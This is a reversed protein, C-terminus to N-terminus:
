PTQNICGHRRQYNYYDQWQQLQQSLDTSKLDALCYFEEWNTRQTREVKSNLHPSCPKTPRFKIGVAMLHRQAKDAMLEEGRDTQFRQIPFPMGATVQQLFALTSAASKNPHLQMVKFRTCDDIATYQYLKPGIKCIDMQVREGPIAKQYRRQHKRSRRTAKLPKVGAQTLM